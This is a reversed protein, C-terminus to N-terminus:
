RARTRRFGWETVSSSVVVQRRIMTYSKEILSPSGLLTNGYGHCVIPVRYNLTDGSHHNWGELNRRDGSTTASPRGRM